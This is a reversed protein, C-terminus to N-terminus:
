RLPPGAIWSVLSKRIGKTVPNVKHLLFSPFVVAYGLEKPIVTDEKGTKLLLEGGEYEDPKSLQIVVTLKRQSAEDNEGVDIHYDYFGQNSSDYETYQLDSNFRDIDFNWMQKNAELVLSAIKDYIPHSEENYRVWKINSRRYDDMIQSDTTGITGPTQELSDFFPYLSDLEENDFFDKWWFYNTVTKVPLPFLFKSSYETM